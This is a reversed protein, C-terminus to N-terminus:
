KIEDDPIKNELVEQEQKLLNKIVYVRQIKRYDESFLITIHWLPKGEVTGIKAVKGVPIGRPFMGAGGRTVFSSWKVMRMDNSIGSIQGYRAHNGDWKLLGFAGTKENMVDINISETLVSKVTSFHASVSHIVGVIGQDSFVGMDRKIGQISGVNITFFNNRKSFTSNIVTAPIYQYQLHFTTDDIKVLNRKLQILSEISKERLNVNARQLKLNSNSLNLLKTVDNRYELAKGTVINASTLIQTKPFSLFSFYLYLALCQLSVFFLFVQFRNFFAFLKRM